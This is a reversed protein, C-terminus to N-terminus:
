KNEERDAEVLSLLSGIQREMKEHMTKTNADMREKSSKTEKRDTEAKEQMEALMEIIRQMEM